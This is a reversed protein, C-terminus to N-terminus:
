PNRSPLWSQSGWGRGHTGAPNEAPADEYLNLGWAELVVSQTGLLTLGQSRGEEPWAEQGVGDNGDEETIRMGWDSLGLTLAKENGKM